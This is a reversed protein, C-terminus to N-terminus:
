KNISNANKLLSSMEDISIKGDGDKDTLYFLKKVMDSNVVFNKGSKKMVEEVKKLMKYVEDIDLVGDGNIDFKKFLLEVKSSM